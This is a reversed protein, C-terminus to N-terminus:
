VTVGKEGAPTESEKNPPLVELLNFDKDIGFNIGSHGNVNILTNLVMQYKGIITNKSQEITTLQGMLEKILTKNAEDVEIKVLEKKTVETVESM